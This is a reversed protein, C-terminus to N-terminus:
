EFKNIINAVNTIDEETHYFSIPLSLTTKHIEESIPFSNPLQTVLAPQKHPPTPYHIATKIGNSLLFSQIKDRQKHRINFIHYVDFHDKDVSPVTFKESLSDFYIKALNRKHENIKDLSRLKIRLFTAQLEDLRSNVGLIKNNYKTEEGYNRLMLVKERIEDDNTVVAGADGLAGLNKTPYFSFAAIHGLTGTKNGKYSAGHAQAADEIVILGYKEAIDMIPNMECTKGYLHVVLIAKTKPSIHKEIMEPDINYTNLKPEVLVPIHGSEYISIITAIYTNSPVIIESKETFNCARIALTIADLGSAVGVCYKAGNYRAFENEFSSVENGLVYWGSDLFEEFKNKFEKVFPNNLNKLNEYEIM